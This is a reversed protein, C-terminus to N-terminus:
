TTQGHVVSIYSPIHYDFKTFLYSVTKRFYNICLHIRFRTLCSLHLKKRLDNSAESALESDQCVDLISSKAFITLFSFGKVIKAFVEIKSRQCPESYAESSAELTLSHKM